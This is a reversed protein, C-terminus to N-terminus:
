GLYRYIVKGMLRFLPMPMRPSIRRVFRYSLSNEKAREPAEAKPYGYQVIRDEQTGWHRKFGLLGENAQHTRGFSFKKLGEQHAIKICSWYLFLNPSLARHVFDDGAFEVLMMDKSKLFFLGAVKEGKHEAFYIDLAGREFLNEFLSRLFGMPMPPLGLRQRTLCYLRYFDNVHSVRDARMLVLGAKESKKLPRKVCSYHFSDHIAAIDRDLDLFHHLYNRSAHFLGSEEFLEHTRNSHLEFTINKGSAKRLEDFYGTLATVHEPANCLISSYSSFPVSVYKTGTMLSSIRYLPIQTIRGSDSKMLLPFCKIHPFNAELSDRWQFTHCIWSGPAESLAAEWSAADEWKQM